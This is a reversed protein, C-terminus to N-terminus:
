LPFGNRDVWVVNKWRKLVTSTFERQGPYLHWFNLNEPVERFQHLWWKLHGECRQYWDLNPESKLFQDPDIERLDNLELFTEEMWWWHQRYSDRILCYMNKLCQENRLERILILACQIVWDWELEAHQQRHGSKYLLRTDTNLIINTIKDTDGEAMMRYLPAAEFYLVDHRRIGFHRIGFLMSYQMPYQLSFLLLPERLAVRRSERSVRLLPCTQERPRGDIEISPPPGRAEVDRADVCSLDGIVIIRPTRVFEEWIMNRLETPLCNFVTFTTEGLAVPVAGQEPQSSM